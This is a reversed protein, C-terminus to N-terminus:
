AAAARASSAKADRWILDAKPQQAAVAQAPSKEQVLDPWHAACFDNWVNTALLVPAKYQEESAKHITKNSPKSYIQSRGWEDEFADHHEQDWLCVPRNLAKSNVLLDLTFLVKGCPAGCWGEKQVPWSVVLGCVSWDKIIHALEESVQPILKKKGHLVNTKLPISPLSQPSTTDSSPHSAVALHIRDASITMSLVSGASKKWDLAHAVKAPSTLLKTISTAAIM